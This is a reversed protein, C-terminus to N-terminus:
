LSSNICKKRFQYPTIGRTKKFQSIFHSSSSFGSSLAIETIDCDSSILKKEAERLRLATIYDHFNKGFTKKFVHSFYNCSYNCYNAADKETITDFNESIYVLTHKLRENINIGLSTSTNQSHHRFVETFIRFIISYIALEYAPKKEDWEKMINEFCGPLDLNKFNESKFTQKYPNKKFFPLLYKSLFLSNGDPYLIEPALKVVIYHSPALFSLRHPENSNIIIMDGNTFNFNEQNIWVVAESDLSFLLEIYDHYHFNHNEQIYNDSPTMKRDICHIQSKIGDITFPQELFTNM